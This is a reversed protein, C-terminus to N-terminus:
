GEMLRRVQEQHQRDQLWTAMDLPLRVTKTPDKRPRGSGERAGGRGSTVRETGPDLAGNLRHRIFRKLARLYGARAADKDPDAHMVMPYAPHEFLFMGDDQSWWPAIEGIEQLATQLETELNPM